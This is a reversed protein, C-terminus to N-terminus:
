KLKGYVVGSGVTSMYLTWFTNMDGVIFNGNGTGM